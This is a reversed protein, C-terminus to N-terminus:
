EDISEFVGGRLQPDIRDLRGGFGGASMRRRAARGGIQHRRQEEGFHPEIRLIGAVGVAIPEDQRFPVRGRHQVGRPRFRTREIAALQQLQAAEVGIEFAM